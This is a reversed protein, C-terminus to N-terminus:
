CVENNVKKYIIPKNGHWDGKIIKGQKIKKFLVTTVISYTTTFIEMLEYITFNDLSDIYKEIEFSVQSRISDNHRKKNEEKAHWNKMTEAHQEKRGEEKWQETASEKLKLLTEPKRNTNLTHMLEKYEPRKRSEVSKKVHEESNNIEIMKKIFENKDKESKNEWNEKKIIGRRKTIEEQEEKTLKDWNEQRTQKAKIKVEPAKNVKLWKEYYDPDKYREKIAVSIKERLEPHKKYKRKNAESQKRKIEDINPNHSINDGGFGGEGINYAIERNQANFKKIYFKEKEALEELNSCHCIIEKIFNEKGYKKIANLLITGSGLYKPNNKADKGIYFKGNILNTTKYIVM